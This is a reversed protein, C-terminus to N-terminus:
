RGGCDYPKDRTAYSAVVKGIADEDPFYKQAFARDVIAAASATPGEQESFSRGALFPIRLTSFYNPLV